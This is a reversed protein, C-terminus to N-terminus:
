LSLCLSDRSIHPLKTKKGTFEQQSILKTQKHSFDRSIALGGLYLLLIMKLFFSILRQQLKETLM